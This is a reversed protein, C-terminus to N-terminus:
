RARAAELPPRPPVPRGLHALVADAARRGSVLAGQISSTDRHDGAVFLGGGLDVPSRADMPPPVATLARPLVHTALLEWADTATGYVHALQRRVVAEVEAGAAGLVTSAILARADPSYSRVSHSIVLTNVVPGRRDADVHLAGSRTPPEDAVHWFTTLGHMAPTTLGIL